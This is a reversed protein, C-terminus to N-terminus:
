QAGATRIFLACRWFLTQEVSVVEFGSRRILAEVSRVPHVFARFPNGRLSRSLNELWIALRVVLRDRPYSAAYYKRARSTSSAILAPADPYCCIVKDLTVVDADDLEPALEIIDGHRFQVRDSLGAQNLREAAAALYASSIDVLVARRAGAELLQQTLVGIGAGVDLVTRRAVGARTLARVLLRTEAPPGSSHLAAELDVAKQPSFHRDIV